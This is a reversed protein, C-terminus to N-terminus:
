CARRSCRRLIVFFPAHRSLLDGKKLKKSSYYSDFNLKLCRFIIKRKLGAFYSEGCPRPSPRQKTRSHGGAVKEHGSYVWAPDAKTLFFPLLAWSPAM